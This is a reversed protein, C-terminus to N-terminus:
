KPDQSNTKAQDFQLHSVTLSMDYQGEECDGELPNCEWDYRKDDEVLPPCKGNEFEWECQKVFFVGSVSAHCSCIM